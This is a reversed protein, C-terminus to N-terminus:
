RRGCADFFTVTAPWDSFVAHVGIENILVDLVRYVDGDTHIARAVSQYYWGGGAALPGSRELTWPILELGVKRAAGRHGIALASRPYAASRAACAALRSKLPGPSLADLLYFPRPGLQAPQALVFGWVALALWLYRM